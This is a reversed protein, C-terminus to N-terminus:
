SSRRRRVAAVGLVLRVAVVAVVVLCALRLLGLGINGGEGDGMSVIETALLVLVAGLLLGGPARSAGEPGGRGSRDPLLLLVAAVLGAAYGAFALVSPLTGQGTGPRSGSLVIAAIELAVFLMLALLASSRRDM